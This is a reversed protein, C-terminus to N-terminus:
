RDGAREDGLEQRREDEVEVFRVVWALFPEFLVYLNSLLFVLGDPHPRALRVGPQNVFAEAPVVIKIVQVIDRLRLAAPVHRRAEVTLREVIQGDVQVRQQTAPGAGATGPDLAVNWADNNNYFTQPDSVHYRAWMNTQVRFLDEPYRLHEQLAEPMDDMDTFLDPFAGRYAEVIPDDEDVVYVAGDRQARLRARVEGMTAGTLPLAAAPRAVSRATVRHAARRAETGHARGSVQM